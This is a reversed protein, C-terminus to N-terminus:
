LGLLGREAEHISVGASAAVRQDARLGHAGTFGGIADLLQKRRAPHRGQHMDVDVQDARKIRAVVFQDVVGARRQEGAQEHAFGIAADEAFQMRLLARGQLRQKPAIRAEGHVFAVAVPGHIGQQRRLFAASQDEDIRGELRLVVFEADDFFGEGIRVSAPRGAHIRDPVRDLQALLHLREVSPQALAPKGLDDNGFQKQVGVVRRQAQIAAAHDHDVRGPLELALELLQQRCQLVQEGLPAVPLM